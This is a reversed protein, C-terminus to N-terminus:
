SIMLERCWRDDKCIMIDYWWHQDGVMWANRGEGREKAPSGALECSDKKLMWVAPFWNIAASGRLWWVERRKLDSSWLFSGYLVNCFLLKNPGISGSSSHIILLSLTLLNGKLYGCEPGCPEDFTAGCVPAGSLLLFIWWAVEERKKEFCHWAADSSARERKLCAVLFLCRCPRGFAFSSVHRSSSM